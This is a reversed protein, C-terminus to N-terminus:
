MLGAFRFILTTFINIETKMDTFSVNTSEPAWTDSTTLKERIGDRLSATETIRAASGTGSEPHCFDHERSRPRFRERVFVIIADGAVSRTQSHPKDPELWHGVRALIRRELGIHDRVITVRGDLIREVPWDNSAEITRVRSGAYHDVLVHSGARRWRIFRNYCTTYPGFSEQLDRQPAGSRLVRHGNLVRRDNV